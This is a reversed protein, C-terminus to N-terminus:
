LVTEEEGDDDDDMVIASQSQSQSQKAYAQRKKQRRVLMATEPDDALQDWTLNHNQCGAMPCVHARSSKLHQEIGRRSYSHGCLKSKVPDDMLTGMIPCKLAAVNEVPLVALDDDEDVEGLKTCLELYKPEEIVAVSEENIKELEEEVAKELRGQFNDMEQSGAGAGSGVSTVARIYAKLRREKAVNEKISDEDLLSDFVGNRELRAALSNVMAQNQDIGKRYEGEKRILSNTVLTIGNNDHHNYSMASFQLVHTVTRV